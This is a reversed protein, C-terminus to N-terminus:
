DGLVSGPVRSAQRDRSTQLCLTVTVNWLPFCRHCVGRALHYVPQSVFRMTIYENSTPATPRHPHIVSSLLTQSILAHTQSGTHSEERALDDDMTQMGARKIDDASTYLMGHTLKTFHIGFCLAYWNGLECLGANHDFKPWGVRFVDESLGESVKGTRRKGM